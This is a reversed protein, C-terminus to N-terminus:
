RISRTSDIFSNFRDSVLSIAPRSGIQVLGTISM